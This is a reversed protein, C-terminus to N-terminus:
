YTWNSNWNTFIPKGMKGFPGVPTIRFRVRAGSSLERYGLTYSVTEDMRGPALFYHPSFVRKTLAIYEAGGWVSVTDVIYDQVRAPEGYQLAVPFKAYFQHELTGDRTPQNSKWSLVATAGEAFEPAVERAEQAAFTWPMNAATVPLPIKWDVDIREDRAVDRREVMIRDAYVNFVMAHHGDTSIQPMHKYEGSRAEGNERGYPLGTYCLSAPCLATFSGQWLAHGDSFPYHSHGSISVANTFASLATTSNGGDAGWAWSGFVTNRPHPHQVHFFPKEGALEAAHAALFAPSETAEKGWHVGVFKYGKVDKIYVDSYDEDFAARWAAARDAVVYEGDAAEGLLDHNGYVFIKEVPRGNDGQNGPFVERWAAGTAMLENTLGTNSIDGAIVVADVGRARFQRFAQRLYHDTNSGRDGETAPRMVHVDSLVGIRLLPEEVEAATQAAKAQSAHSIACVSPLAVRLGMFERSMTPSFGYQNCSVSGGSFNWWSGGKALRLGNTCSNPGIPDVQLSADMDALGDWELCWEYVNGFMDYFGWANPLLSGVLGTGGASPDCDAAPEESLGAGDVWFRAEDASATNNHSTGARSAHEWQATTPLDFMLGTRARLRAMLSDPGVERYGGAPWRGGRVDMYSVKDAPRTDGIFYGPYDGDSVVEWQRRTFEFVGLYFGETLRVPHPTMERKGGTKDGKIGGHVFTDAGGHGGTWERSTTAPVRRLVLHTTKYLDANVQSAFSADHYVAAGTELDVDLYTGDSATELYPHYTLGAFAQGPIDKMPDWVVHAVGDRIRGDQDLQLASRRAVEQTGNSVVLGFLGTQAGAPASVAFKVDVLHSWPKRQTGTATGLIWNEEGWAAGVALCGALGAMWIKRMTM